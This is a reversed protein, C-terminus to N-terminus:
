IQNAVMEYQVGAKADLHQLRRTGLMITEEVCKQEGDIRGGSTAMM